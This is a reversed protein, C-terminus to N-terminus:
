EPASGENVLDALWKRAQIRYVSPKHMWLDTHPHIVGREPIEFLSTTPVDLFTFRGLNQFDKLFQDRIASARTGCVMVPRGGLRELRKLASARDSGPYGWAREGDFHDHTFFGKWFRAIEDDALGIFSVGIAGRSFGCLFVRNLDGGFQKCIRPLNTKCYRVTAQIDGWWTVENENGTESVYPMSVWIFGRGGSLGFGLNADEVKGTSLCRDWKNGTYEVIVPYQHSPNWEVPLYLAHFVQTGSYEDATQRVLKGAAPTEDTMLPTELDFADAAGLQALSFRVLLLLTLWVLKMELLTVQREVGDDM